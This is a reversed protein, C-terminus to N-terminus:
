RLFTTANPNLSSFVALTVLWPVLAILMWVFALKLREFKESLIRSNTWVQGLLDRAYSDETQADYASLFDAETRKALTGFFVISTAGGELEGGQVNPFLGCWIEYLSIAICVSPVLAIAAAGTWVKVPPAAGTLLALMSLDIGLM